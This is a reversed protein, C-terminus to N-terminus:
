FLLMTMQSHLNTKEEAIVLAVVLVVFWVIIMSEDGSQGWERRGNTEGLVKIRLDIRVQTFLTDYLAILSNQRIAVCAMGDLKFQPKQHDTFNCQDIQLILPKPPRYWRRWCLHSYNKIRHLQAKLRSAFFEQNELKQGGRKTLSWRLTSRRVKTCAHPNVM